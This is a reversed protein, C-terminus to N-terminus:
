PTNYSPRLIKQMLILDIYRGFKFGVEPIQAVQQYGLKAHFAQAAANEGSIAAILSHTENEFAHRELKELLALGVGKGRANPALNISLEKSHFYGPGGRFASYTAFGIVQGDNEAVFFAGIRVKILASIEQPERVENTFTVTTDRILPNSIDCIAPADDPEAARIIM